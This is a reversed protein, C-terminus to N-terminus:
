PNKQFSVKAVNSLAKLAIDRNKELEVVERVGRTRASVFYAAVRAGVDFPDDFFGGEEPSRLETLM